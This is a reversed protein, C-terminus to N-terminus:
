QARRDRLLAERENVTLGGWIGHVENATLAYDLCDSCVPCHACVTKADFPQGGPEPFFIEPDTQACVASDRWTEALDIPFATAVHTLRAGRQSPM